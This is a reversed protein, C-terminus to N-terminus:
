MDTSMYRVGGLFFCRVIVFVDRFCVFNRDLSILLASALLVSCNNVGECATHSFSLGTSLIPIEFLFYFRTSHVLSCFGTKKKM